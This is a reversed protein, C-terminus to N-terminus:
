RIECILLVERSVTYDVPKYIKFKYGLNWSEIIPKIKFFDDANHYISLLLVPKFREITNRAGKLLDQEAGEVDVKIMGVDLGNKEVYGDLTIVKVKEQYETESAILDSSSSCAGSVNMIVETEASGLATNVSVANKVDNLELTRNLIEYNEKIAEFTYVKKDTLKSFILVSDGIYGGADIIDRNRLMEINEINEIGHKFYLVSAEFHNVPLLYNHYCYLNDSVRLIEKKFNTMMDKLAKQEEETYLDINRGDTDRIDQQRKLIRVVTAVDEEELGRILDLFLKEYNDSDYYDHFTGIVKREYDNNYFTKKLVTRNINDSVNYNKRCIEEIYKIKKDFEEAKSQLFTCKEIENQFLNQTELVNNINDGLELLKKGLGDICKEQTAAVLSLKDDIEKNKQEINIIERKLASSNKDLLQKIYRNSDELKKFTAPLIKKLLDKM